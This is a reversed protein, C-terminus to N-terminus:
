QCAVFRQTGHDALGTDSHSSIQPESASAQCIPQQLQDEAVTLMM